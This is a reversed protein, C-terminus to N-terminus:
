AGILPMATDVFKEAVFHEIGISVAKGTRFAKRALLRLEILVLKAPSKASGDLLISCEEKSGIFTAANALADKRRGDSHGTGLFSWGRGVQHVSLDNRVERIHIWHSAAARAM